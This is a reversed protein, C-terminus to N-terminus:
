QGTMRQPLWSTHRPLIALIVAFRCCPGSIILFRLGSVPPFIWFFPHLCYYGGCVRRFRGQMENEAPDCERAKAVFKRIPMLFNGRPLADRGTGVEWLVLTAGRILVVTVGRSRLNIRLLQRNFVIPM